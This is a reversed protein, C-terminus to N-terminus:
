KYVKSPDFLPQDEQDFALQVQGDDGIELSRYFCSKRGTHCNAGTDQTRVRLIVADQDCDTRIESIIQVNGSTEGKKWLANRSRSWYHAIGTQLSLQLAEANMYALMLITNDEADVAIATILGDGNFRPRFLASSDLEDKSVDASAFKIQSVPSDM